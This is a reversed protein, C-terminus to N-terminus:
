YSWTSAILAALILVFFKRENIRLAAVMLIVPAILKDVAFPTALFTAAFLALTVAFLSRRTFIQGMVAHKNM